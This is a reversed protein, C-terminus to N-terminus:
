NLVESFFAYDWLYPSFIFVSFHVGWLRPIKFKLIKYFLDTNFNKYDCLITGALPIFLVTNVSKYICTQLVIM